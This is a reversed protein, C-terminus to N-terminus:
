QRTLTFSSEAVWKSVERATGSAVILANETAHGIMANGTVDAQLTESTLLLDRLNGNACSLGVTKSPTCSIAALHLVNGDISGAYSCVAGSHDIDLTATVSRGSQTFTARFQSPLALVEDFLPELCEGGAMSTVSQEGLWAGSLQPTSPTAPSSSRCGASMLLSLGLCALGARLKGVRATSRPLGM